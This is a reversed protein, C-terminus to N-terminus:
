RSGRRMEPEGAPPRPRRMQMMHTEIEQRTAKPPLKARHEAEEKLEQEAQERLDFRSRAWFYRLREGSAYFRSLGIAGLGMAWWTREFISWVLVLLFVFAWFLMAGLQRGVYAVALGPETRMKQHLRVEARGQVTMRHSWRPGYKRAAKVSLTVIGGLLFTFVWFYVSAIFSEAVGKSFPNISSLDVSETHGMM